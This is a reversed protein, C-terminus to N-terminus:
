FQVLDKSFKLYIKRIEEKNEFHSHSNKEIFDRLILLNLGIPEIDKSFPMGFYKMNEIKPTAHVKISKQFFSEDLFM